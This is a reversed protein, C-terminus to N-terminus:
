DCLKRKLDGFVRALLAGVVAEHHFYHLRGGDPGSHLELHGHVIRERHQRVIRVVLALDDLLQSCEEPLPLCIVNPNM